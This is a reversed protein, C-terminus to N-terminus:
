QSDTLEAVYLWGKALAAYAVHQEGKPMVQRANIAKTAFNQEVASLENCSKFCAAGGHNGSPTCCSSGVLRALFFGLNCGRGIGFDEFYDYGCLGGCAVAMRVIQERV